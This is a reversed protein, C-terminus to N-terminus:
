LILIGPNALTSGPSQLFDGFFVEPPLNRLPLFPKFFLLSPLLPAKVGFAKEGTTKQLFGCPPYNISCGLTTPLPLYPFM